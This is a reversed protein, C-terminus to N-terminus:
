NAQRIKSRRDWASVDAPPRDSITLLCGPEQGFRCTTARFTLVQGSYRKNPAGTFPAAKIVDKRVATELAKRLADPRGSSVTRPGHILNGSGDIMFFAIVQAQGSDILEPWNPPKRSGAVSILHTYISPTDAAQSYSVPTLLVAMFLAAHTGVKRLFIKPQVM